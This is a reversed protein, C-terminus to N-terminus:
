IKEFAQRIMKAENTKNQREKEFKDSRHKDEIIRIINEVAKRKDDFYSYNGYEYIEKHSGIVPLRDAEIIVETKTESYSTTKGPYWDQMAADVVHQADGFGRPDPEAYSGSTHRSSKKVTIVVNTGAIKMKADLRRNYSEGTQEFDVFEFKRKELLSEVQKAFVDQADDKMKM